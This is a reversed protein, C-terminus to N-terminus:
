DALGLQRYKVRVKYGKAYSDVLRAAAQQDIDLSLRREIIDMDTDSMEKAPADHDAVAIVTKGDVTFQKATGLEDNFLDVMQAQNLGAFSQSRVLADSTQLKLKYRGAVEDISDGNEVDTMVDNIVEQAIASKESEAWMKKIKPTATKIDQPHADIINDVRVFDYGNDTEVAQSIEDKNYSFATEMYPSAVTDVLGKVEKTKLGFEAAVDELTAGAGIKDEIEKIIDSATEYSKEIRLAETIQKKAVADDVKSGAKIDTVKMIHWGNESQVPGVVANKSAAFVDDAMEEILMDKSVFGLDTDEHSQEAFKEAAAYFDMGGKVAQAASNATKEDAFLMQMVERTEPTVFRDINENYYEKVEEDSVETKTAIDEFTLELVTADRTEPEVFEASFDNYYQEIEDDSISRDIKVENPNVEIFKFVKRQGEAKAVLESLTKSVNMSSTPNSILLSKILDSRLTEVYRQESWGTTSLFSNFRAPSFRGEDDRFQPQSLIINRILANGIHVNNDASLEAVVMNTLNKQVLESAMANRMEDSIEIDEGFLRRALRTQEDLQINFEMLSLKRDNVKIVAPNGAARNLYGSVGFLSMFSLATLGLVAKAAWTEQAKRLKTIM